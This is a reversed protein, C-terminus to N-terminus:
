FIKQLSIMYCHAFNLQLDTALVMLIKSFRLEFFQFSKLDTLSYNQSVFNNLRVSGSRLRPIRHTINGAAQPSYFNLEMLIGRGSATPLTM